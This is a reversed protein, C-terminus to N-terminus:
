SVSRFHLVNLSAQHLIFCFPFGTIFNSLSFADSGLSVTGFPSESDADQSLQCLLPEASGLAQVGDRPCSNWRRLAWMYVLDIIRARPLYLCSIGLALQRAPSLQCGTHAQSLASCKLSVGVESSLMCTCSWAYLVCACTHVCTYMPLLLSPPSSM